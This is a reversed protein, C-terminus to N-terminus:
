FYHGGCAPRPTESLADRSTNLIRGPRSIYVCFKKDSRDGLLRAEQYVALIDIRTKAIRCIRRYNSQLVNV